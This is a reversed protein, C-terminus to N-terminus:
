SRSNRATASREGRDPVVTALRVNSEIQHEIQSFRRTSFTGFDNVPLAETGKSRGLHVPPVDARKDQMPEIYAKAQAYSFM